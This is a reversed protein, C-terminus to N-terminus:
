SCVVDLNATVAMRRSYDGLSKDSIGIQRWAAKLNVETERVRRPDVVDSPLWTERGANTRPAPPGSCNRM